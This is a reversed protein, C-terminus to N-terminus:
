ITITEWEDSKKCADDPWYEDFAAKSKHYGVQTMLITNSIVWKRRYYTTKPKPEEYLEYDVVSSLSCIDGRDSVLRENCLYYYGTGEPSYRKLKKGDLLAQMTEVM